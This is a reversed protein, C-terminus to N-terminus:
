WLDMIEANVTEMLAQERMIALMDEEAPGLADEIFQWQESSARDALAQEIGVQTPTKIRRYPTDHKIKQANALGEHVNALLVPDIGGATNVRAVQTGFRSPPGFGAGMYFKARGYQGANLGVPSNVLLDGVQLGARDVLNPFAEALAGAMRPAGAMKEMSVSTPINPDLGPRGWGFVIEQARSPTTNALVELEAPVARINKRDMENVARSPHRFLEFPYPETNSLLQMLMQRENYPDGVYQGVSLQRDRPPWAVSKPIAEALARIEQASFPITPLEALLRQAAFRHHM